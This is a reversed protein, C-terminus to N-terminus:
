NRLVAIDTNEELEFNHFCSAIDIKVLCTDATTGGFRGLLEDKTPLPFFNAPLEENHRRYDLCVRIKDTGKRRAAVINAPAVLPFKCDEILGLDEFQQLQKNVQEAVNPNFTRRKEPKLQIDKNLPNITVPKLFKGVSKPGIDFADINKLIIQKLKSRIDQNKIHAIKLDVLEIIQKDSM